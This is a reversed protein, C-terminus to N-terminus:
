QSSTCARLDKKPRREEWKAAGSRRPKKKLGTGESFEMRSAFMTRSGQPIKDRSQRRREVGPQLRFRTEYPLARPSDSRWRARFLFVLMLPRPAPRYM